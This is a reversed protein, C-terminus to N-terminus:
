PAVIVDGPELEINQIMKEGSVVDPYDFEFRKMDKGTGRIVVVGSKKAWETFGGAVALAQLVNTPTLMPYSAPKNVEGLVAFYHSRPNVVSVYVKPVEVYRALRQTIVEKLQMPTRGAAMVDDVLPLSIRGDPRVLVEPRSLSDERWVVIDLIDSPGILYVDTIAKRLAKNTENSGARPRAKKGDKAEPKDQMAALAPLSWCAALILVSALTFVRRFRSRKVGYKKSFAM